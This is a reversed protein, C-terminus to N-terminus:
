AFFYMIFVMATSLIGAYFLDKKFLSDQTKDAKAYWMFLAFTLGSAVFAVIQPSVYGM